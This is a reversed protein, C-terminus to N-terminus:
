PLLWGGGLTGGYVEGVQPGSGIQRPGVRQKNAKGMRGIEEMFERRMDRAENRQGEAERYRSLMLMPVWVAWEPPVPLSTLSSGVPYPTLNRRGAFRINLETVSTGDPWAQALTGGLSRVMGTMQNASNAAYAVIETGILALGFPLVFNSLGIGATTATASINGGNNALVTQNATRNPQPFLQVIMNEAVRELTVMGSISTAIRNRYYIQSKNGLDMIWGDYWAHDISEWQGNLTYLPQGNSSSAGTADYVGGAAKSMAMLAENLWRYATQMGVFDGDSDPIYARNRAPPYGPIGPATITGPNSTLDFETYQNQAGSATGYYVRYKTVYPITINSPASITVQISNNVGIAVSQEGSPTTEGWPTLLTAKLFWQTNSQLTGATAVGVAQTIQPPGIVQAPDPGLERMAVILDGILM